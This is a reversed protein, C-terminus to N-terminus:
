ISVIVRFDSIIEKDQILGGFFFFFFFDYFSGYLENLTASKQQMIVNVNTGKCSKLFTM